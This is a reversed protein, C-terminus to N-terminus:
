LMVPCFIHIELAPNQENNMTKARISSSLFMVPKMTSFSGLLPIEIFSSSCLSPIRAEEVRCTNKLSVLTGTSFINAPRPSPKLIAIFAKFTPRILNAAAQKSACRRTVELAM